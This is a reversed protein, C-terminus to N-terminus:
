REKPAPLAIFLIRLRSSRPHQYPLLYYEYGPIQAKLMVADEHHALPFLTKIITPFKHYNLYYQTYRDGSKPLTDGYKLELYVEEAQLSLFYHTMDYIGWEYVKNISLSYIVILAAFLLGVQLAIYRGISSPMKM